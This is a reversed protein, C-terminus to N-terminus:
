NTPHNDQTQPENTSSKYIEIERNIVDSIIKTIIRITTSQRSRQPYLLRNRSIVQQSLGTLKSIEGDTIHDSLCYCIAMRACCCDEEKSTTLEEPEKEIEETVSKVIERYIKRYIKMPYQNKM